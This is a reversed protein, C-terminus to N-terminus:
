CSSCSRLGLGKRRSMFYPSVFGRNFQMGETIEIEDETTRGDEVTVAGEKGVKEIAQAILSGIHTDGNVSITAVQAIEATTAM